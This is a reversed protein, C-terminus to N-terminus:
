EVITFQIQAEIEDAKIENVCDDDTGEIWIYMVVKTGSSTVQFLTDSSYDGTANKFGKTIKNDTGSIVTSEPWNSSAISNVAKTGENDETENNPEYIVFTNDVLFGVRVANIASNTDLPDKARVFTGPINAQGNDVGMTGTQASPAVTLIGVNTSAEESKLYYTYKAVYGSLADDALPNTALGTVENGAYVPEYFEAKTDDELSVPTLVKNGEISQTTSIDIADVYSNEIGDESIKLGSTTAATMQLGTVTPSTTLSFWAYTATSLMSVMVLVMVLASRIEKWKTRKM